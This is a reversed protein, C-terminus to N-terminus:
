WSQLPVGNGDYYKNTGFLVIDTIQWAFLGCCMICFFFGVCRETDEESNENESGEDNSFISQKKEKGMKYKLVGYFVLFICTFFLKLIGSVLRGCYLHGVGSSLFFELLFASIQKKQTYQCYKGNSDQGVQSNAYGEACRIILDKFVHV